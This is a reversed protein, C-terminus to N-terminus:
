YCWQIPWNMFSGISYPDTSILRQLLKIRTVIHDSGVITKNTYNKSVEFNHKEASQKFTQHHM